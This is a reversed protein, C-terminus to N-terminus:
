DPIMLCGGCKGSSISWRNVIKKHAYVKLRSIILSLSWIELFPSLFLVTEDQLIVSVEKIYNWMEVFQPFQQDVKPLTEWGGAGRGLGM